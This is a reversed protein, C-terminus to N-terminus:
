KAAQPGPPGVSAKAVFARETPSLSSKDFIGALTLYGELVAPANAFAGLMNPVFGFKSQVARLLDRSAAPATEVSQISVKIRPTSM